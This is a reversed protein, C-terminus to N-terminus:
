HLVRDIAQHAIDVLSVRGAEESALGELFIVFRRQADRQAIVGFAAAWDNSQVIPILM